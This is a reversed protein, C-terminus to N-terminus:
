ENLAELAAAEMVQLGLWLERTVAIGAADLGARVGAYDLGIFTLRAPTMGGGLSQTRWQSSIWLFAAVTEANQPWVGSGPGARVAAPAGLSERIADLAEQSAGGARADAM